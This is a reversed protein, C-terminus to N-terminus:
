QSLCNSRPSSSRSDLGTTAFWCRRGRTWSQPASPNARLSRTHTSSSSSREVGLSLGSPFLMPDYRRMPSHGGASRAHYTRSMKRIALRLVCEHEHEHKNTNVSTGGLQVLQLRGLGAEHRGEPANRRPFTCEEESYITWAAIYNM